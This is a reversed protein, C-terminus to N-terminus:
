LEPQKNKKLLLFFKNFEQESFLYYVVLTHIIPNAELKQPDTEILTM